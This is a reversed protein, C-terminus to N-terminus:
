HIKSSKKENELLNTAIPLDFDITKTLNVFVGNKVVFHANELLKNSQLIPHLDSFTELMLGKSSLFDLWYDRETSFFLYRFYVRDLYFDAIELSDAPREPIKKLLFQYLSKARFQWLSSSHIIHEPVGYDIFRAPSETQLDFVVDPVASNFIKPYHTKIFNIAEKESYIWKSFLFKSQIKTLLGKFFNEQQYKLLHLYYLSEILIEYEKQSESLHYELISRTRNEIYWSVFWNKSELDTDIVADLQDDLFSDGFKWIIGGLTLNNFLDLLSSNLDFNDIFVLSPIGENQCIQVYKSIEEYIGNFAYHIVADIKNKALFNAFQLNHFNLSSKDIDLSWIQAQRSILEEIVFESALPHVLVKTNKKIELKDFLNQLSKLESYHCYSSWRGATIAPNSFNTKLSFINKKLYKKLSLGSFWRDKKQLAIKLLQVKNEVSL